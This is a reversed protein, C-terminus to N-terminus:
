AKRVGRQPMMRPKAYKEWCEHCVDLGGAMKTESSWHGNEMKRPTYRKLGFRLVPNKPNDPIGCVDCTKWDAM